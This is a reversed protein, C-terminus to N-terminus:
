TIAFYLMQISQKVQQLVQIHLFLTCIINTFMLSFTYNRKDYAGNDIDEIYNKIVFGIM